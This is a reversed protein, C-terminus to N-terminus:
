YFLAGLDLALSTLKEAHFTFGTVDGRQAQKRGQSIAGLPTGRDLGLESALSAVHCTSLYQKTNLNKKLNVNRLTCPHFNYIIQPFHSKKKLLSFKIEKKGGAALM